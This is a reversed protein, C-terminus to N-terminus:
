DVMGRVTGVVAESEMLSFCFLKKGLDKFSVGFTYLRTGDLLLFRDHVVPIERVNYTKGDKATTEMKSVVSEQCLEGSSFINKLHESIAAKQVGFLMGIQVEDVVFVLSTM